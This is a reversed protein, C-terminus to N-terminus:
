KGGTGCVELGPWLRLEIQLLFTVLTKHFMRGVFTPPHDNKEDFSLELIRLSMCFLFLQKSFEFFSPM